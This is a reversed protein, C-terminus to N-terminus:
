QKKPFSSIINALYKQILTVDKITVTGDFDVDALASQESNLNAIGALHRQISTVDNITLAGDSNADGAFKDTVTIEFKKTEHNNRTYGSVITTDTSKAIIKGFENITASKASAKSQSWSIGQNFSNTPTSITEIIYREGINLIVSNTKLDITKANTPLTIPKSADVVIYIIDSTYFSPYKQIYNYPDTSSPNQWITDWTIDNPTYGKELQVVKGSLGAKYRWCDTGIRRMFHYNYSTLDDKKYTNKPSVRLAILYQNGTTPYNPRNNTGTLIKGSVGMNKLDSLVWNAVTNVDVYEETLTNEFLGYTITEGPAIGSRTFGLAYPYCFFHEQSSEDYDTVWQHTDVTGTKAAVKKKLHPNKNDDGINTLDISAAAFTSSIFILISLVLSQIVALKQNKKQM